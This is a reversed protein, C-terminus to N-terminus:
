GDLRVQCREHCIGFVPPRCVIAMIAAEHNTQSPMAAAGVSCPVATPAAITLTRICVGSQVQRVCSGTNAGTSGAAMHECLRSQQAALCHANYLAASAAPILITGFCDAQCAIRAKVCCFRLSEKHQQQRRTCVCTCADSKLRLLRPVVVCVKFLRALQQLWYLGLVFICQGPSVENHQCAGSCDCAHHAAQLVFMILSACEAGVAGPAHTLLPSHLTMLLAAASVSDLTHSLSCPASPCVRNDVIYHTPLSTLRSRQRHTPTPGCCTSMDLAQAPANHQAVRKAICPPGLTPTHRPRMSSLLPTALRGSPGDGSCCILSHM